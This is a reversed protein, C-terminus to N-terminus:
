WPKCGTVHRKIVGVPDQVGLSGLFKGLRPGYPSKGEYKLGTAEEWLSAPVRVKGKRLCIAENLARQAFPPFTAFEAALAAKRESAANEKALKEARERPYLPRLVTLRSAVYCGQGSQTFNGTIWGKQRQATRIAKMGGRVEVLHTAPNYTHETNNITVTNM